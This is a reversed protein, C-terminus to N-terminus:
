CCWWYHRFALPSTGPKRFGLTRGAVSDRRFASFLVLTPWAQPRAGQVEHGHRRSDRAPSSANVGIPSPTVELVLPRTIQKITLKGNVRFMPIRHPGPKKELPVTITLV